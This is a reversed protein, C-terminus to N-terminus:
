REDEPQLLNVEYISSISFFDHYAVLAASAILLVIHSM